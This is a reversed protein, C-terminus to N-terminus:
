KLRKSNKWYKYLENKEDKSFDKKALYEVAEDRTNCHTLLYGQVEGINM